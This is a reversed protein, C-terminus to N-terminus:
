IATAAERRHQAFAGPFALHLVLLEILCRHSARELKGQVPRCNAHVGLNTCHNQVLLTLNDGLTPVLTGAGIMGFDHCKLIEKCLGTGGFEGGAVRSDYSKLWAVV